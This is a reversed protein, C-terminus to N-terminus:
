KPRKEKVVVLVDVIGFVSRIVFMVKIVVCKYSSGKFKFKKFSCM